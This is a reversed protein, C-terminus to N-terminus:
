GRGRELLQAQVAQVGHLDDHCHLLLKTNLNGVAFGVFDQGYVLCDVVKGSMRM